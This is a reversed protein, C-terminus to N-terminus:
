TALAKILLVFEIACNVPVNKHKYPILEFKFNPFVQGGVECLNSIDLM